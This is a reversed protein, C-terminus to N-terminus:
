DCQLVQTGPHGCEARMRLGERRFALRDFSRRDIRSLIEPETFREGIESRFQMGM